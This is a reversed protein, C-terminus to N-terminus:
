SVDTVMWGQDTWAVEWVVWDDFATVWTEKGNPLVWLRVKLRVTAADRGHLTIRVDGTESRISDNESLLRLFDARAGERLDPALDALFADLDGKETARRQREVLDLISERRGGGEAERGEASDEDLRETSEPPGGGTRDAPDVAAPVSEEDSQGPTPAFPALAEESGVREGGAGAERGRRVTVQSPTRRAEAEDTVQQLQGGGTGGPPPGAPFASRAAGGTALDGPGVGGAVAQILALLMALGVLGLGVWTQPPLGRTRTRVSRIFGAMLAGLGREERARRVTRRVAAMARDMAAASRSAAERAAARARSGRRRLDTAWARLRPGPGLRPGSHASSGSGAVVLPPRGGAELPLGCRPCTRFEPDLAAGCEPCSRPALPRPDEAGDLAEGVPVGLELAALARQLARGDRFRGAPAKSMLRDVVRCIEAPLHPAIRSLPPPAEKLHKLAVAVPTDADFPVQGTLMEYLVVGLSYLDSAATVPKGAAQEPSMYYPTGLMAGAQTRVNSDRMHAIGFDTLKPYGESTFLVNDPKIDRHIIGKRHAVSLADALAHAVDRARAPHLRGERTIVRTLSPGEVYEMIIFHAGDLEEVDYIHVIGPHALRALTEAERRFRAVYEQDAALHEPLMKVAVTRSLTTQTARYVVGMGGRGIEGTIRYRGIERGIV